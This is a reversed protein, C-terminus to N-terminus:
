KENKTEKIKKSENNKLNNKKIIIKRETKTQRQTRIHMCINRNKDVQNCIDMKESRSKRKSQMKMIKNGNIIFKSIQVNRYSNM